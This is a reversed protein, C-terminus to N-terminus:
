NATIPVLVETRPALTLPKLDLQSVESNKYDITLGNEVLFPKGLIGAHPILFDDHVVQFQTPKVVQGLTVDLIVSGITHVLFENIGKLQYCQTENVLVEDRLETLKIM